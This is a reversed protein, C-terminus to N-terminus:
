CRWRHCRVRKSPSRGTVTKPSGTCPFRTSPLKMPVLALPASRVPFRLAGTSCRRHYSCCPRRSWRRVGAVRDDLLPPPTSMTPPPSWYVCECRAVYDLTVEDAGIGAAGRGPCSPSRHPLESEKVVRDAPSGRARCCSRARLPPSPMLMPSPDGLERLSVERQPVEMAVHDLPVKDTGVGAAGGARPFAPSPTPTNVM